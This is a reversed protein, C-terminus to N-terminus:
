HTKLESYIDFTKKVVKEWTYHQLVKDNGAAGLKNRLRRNKLLTIVAKCIDDSDNFKVLLGDINNRIVEPTAGINAGIVPKSAAWAELFAIGFADSRSPMIYIDATKFASIKKKDLYGTLNDPSLNIIRVKKIKRIKSLERNFAITSPGIFIFYVKKYRNIIKPITKLISIAGKEFNKYGCFLIMKHKREKKHFYHNKFNFEHKKNNLNNFVSYDVGMPIVRIKNSPIGLLRQLKKKEMHTCATLLDFAKLIALMERDLYRPNSFHFFPTCIAPINLRKALILSLILNFYPYFTTHIIDYNNLYNKALHDDIGELYPGNLLFKKLVDNSIDLFKFEEIKRLNKIKQEISLDYNIPLRCIEINNVNKFYKHDNNIIKGNSSRLANFDIANSTLIKVKSNYKSKLIEALRQIYFEAGSLSPFYRTPFFLIRNM